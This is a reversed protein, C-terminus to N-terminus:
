EDALRADTIRIRGSDGHWETDYDLEIRQSMHPGDTVFTEFEGGEGLLHVGYEEHLDRLEAIADADLTHGLWSEDLSYAAV